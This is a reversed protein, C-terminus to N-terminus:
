EVATEPTVPVFYKYPKEETRHVAIGRAKLHHDFQCNVTTKMGSTSREPFMLALKKLMDEKTIPGAKLTSLIVACVGLTKNAADEKKAAEIRAKREANQRRREEGAKEREAKREAKKMEAPTMLTAEAIAATEVTVPDTEVTVPDTEVTMTEEEPQTEVAVPATEVAVPATEVAVPATKSPKKGM